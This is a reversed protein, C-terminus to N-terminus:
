VSLAEGASRRTEIRPVSWCTPSASIASPFRKMRFRTRGLFLPGDRGESPGAGGGAPGAGAGGRAAISTSGRGRRWARAGAGPFSACSRWGRSSPPKRGAAVPACPGRVPRTLNAGCGDEEGGECGRGRSGAVVAGIAGVCTMAGGVGVKRGLEVGKTGETVMDVGSGVPPSGVAYPDGMNISVTAVPRLRLRVCVARRPPAM